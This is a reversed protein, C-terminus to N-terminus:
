RRAPKMIPGGVGGKERTELLSADWMAPQGQITRHEIQAQFEGEGFEAPHNKRPGPPRRSHHDHEGYAGEPDLRQSFFMSETTGPAM